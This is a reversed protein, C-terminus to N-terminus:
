LNRSVRLKYAGWCALLSVPAVLWNLTQPQALAALLLAVAPPALSNTRLSKEWAPSLWGLLGFFGAMLFATLAWRRPHDTNGYYSLFGLLVVFVAVFIFLLEVYTDSRGNYRLGKCIARSILMAVLCLGAYFLVYSLDGLAVPTGLNIFVPILVPFFALRKFHAGCVLGTLISLIPYFVFSGFIVANTVGWYGTREMEAQEAAYWARLNIATILCLALCFALAFVMRFVSAAKPSLKWPANM